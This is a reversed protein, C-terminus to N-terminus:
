NGRLWKILNFIKDPIKLNKDEAILRARIPKTGDYKQSNYVNEGGITKKLEMEYNEEMPVLLTNSDIEKNLDKNYLINESEKLERSDTDYLVVIKLSLFKAIKIFKLLNRKGGVDVMSIDNSDFNFNLRKAYEPISLKETAGEGFIVAKAFFFEKVDSDFDKLIKINNQEIDNIICFNNLLKTAGNIKDLRLIRNFNPLAVFHVSHTTFIIQNKESINELISYLFKQKQPHLFIEPEEILIIADEKKIEEYTKMIAIVIANQLGEGLKTANSEFNNENIILQLNNFFIFPDFSSFKIDIDNSDQYGFQLLTNKKISEEIKIFDDIKLLSLIQSILNNYKDFLKDDDKIKKSIDNFMIKLFSYQSSPLQSEITRPVGMYILNIKEKIEQPITIFAETIAGKGPEFKTIITKIEEYKENLCKQELHYLGKNDGKLYKKYNFLFGYIETDPSIKFKKYKIPSDFIIKILINRNIDRKFIDDISFSNASLWKNNLCLKICDLLNSKGVNNSGIISTMNNNFYFTENEISRFNEIHIEKIKM